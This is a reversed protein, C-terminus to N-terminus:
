DDPNAPAAVPKKAKKESARALDSQMFVDYGNYLVWIISMAVCFVRLMFRKNFIGVLMLVASVAWVETAIGQAKAGTQAAAKPEAATAAGTQADEDDGGIVLMHRIRDKPVESISNVRHKHGQADTYEYVDAM